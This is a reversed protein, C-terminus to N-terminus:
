SDCLPRAVIIIQGKVEAEPKKFKQVFIIFLINTCFEV